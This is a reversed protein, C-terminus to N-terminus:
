RLENVHGTFSNCEDVRDRGAISKDAVGCPEVRQQDSLGLGISRECLQDFPRLGLRCRGIGCAVGLSLRPAIISEVSLEQQPM